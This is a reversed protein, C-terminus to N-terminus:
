FFTKRTQHFNQHLQQQHQDRQHPLLDSCLDLFHHLTKNAVILQDRLSAPKISSYSIM